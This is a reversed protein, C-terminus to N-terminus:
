GGAVWQEDDATGAGKVLSREQRTRIHLKPQGQPEGGWHVGKRVAVIPPYAPPVPPEYQCNGATSFYLSIPPGTRLRGAKLWM